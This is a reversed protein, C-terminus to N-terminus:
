KILMKIKNWTIEEEDTFYFGSDPLYAWGPNEPIFDIELGQALLFCILIRSYMKQQALNNSLFLIGHATFKKLLYNPNGINNSDLYIWIASNQTDAKLQFACEEPQELHILRTLTPNRMNTIIRTSPKDCLNQLTAVINGEATISLEEYRNKRLEDEYEKLWRKYEQKQMAYHAAIQQKANFIEVEKQAQIQANISSLNIRRQDNYADKAQRQNWHEATSLANCNENQTM